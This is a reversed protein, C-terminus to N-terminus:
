QDTYIFLDDGATTTILVVTDARTEADLGAWAAAAVEAHQDDYALISLYSRDWQDDESVNARALQIDDLKRDLLETAAEPTYADGFPFTVARTVSVGIPHGDITVLLDAKKGEVDYVIETETKLLGALECRALVEYAFVESYLSSGGANGDLIIELGGPTLMPRDEPDDYGDDFSLASTFLLPTDGPDLEPEGLVDCMGSLDGFGALPFVIADAAADAAFAADAPAADAPAADAPAADAPAGDAPTADHVVRADAALSADVLHEDDGCGVVAAGIVLALAGAGLHRTRGM